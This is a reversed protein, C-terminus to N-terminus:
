SQPDPDPEGSIESWEYMTLGLTEALGQEIVAGASEEWNDLLVITNCRLLRTLGARMYWNWNPVLGQPIEVRAPNEIDNVGLTRLSAEVSFFLPYNFEPLGTMPGAIYVPEPLTLVRNAIIMEDECEDM